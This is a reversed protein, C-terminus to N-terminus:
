ATRRVPAGGGPPLDFVAAAGAERLLDTTHPQSTFYLLQGSRAVQALLRAVREARVPDFNVLVDDMVFPLRRRRGALDEALALRLCLYLQEATGRSLTDVGWTRDRDDLVLMQEGEQVVGRYGQDTVQAFYTGAARLVAPQRDREYGELTRGVLRCAATAVRWEHVLADRRALLAQRRQDLEAVLESTEVEQLRRRTAVLRELAAEREDALAKRRAEVDFPRADEGGDSASAEIGSRQELTRVEALLAAGREEERAIETELQGLRDGLMRAQGGGEKLDRVADALEELAVLQERRWEPDDPGAGTPRGARSLAQDVQKAYRGLAKDLSSFAEEAEELRQRQDRAREVAALLDAVSGPSRDADLDREACWDRWREELAEQSARAAEARERLEALRTEAEERDAETEGSLHSLREIDARRREARDLEMSAREIDAYTPRAPLGLAVADHALAEVARQSAQHAAVVPDDAQRERLSLRALVGLVVLAVVVITLLVVVAMAGALAAWVGGATVLGALAGVVPVTWGPVEPGRSEVLRTAAELASEAAEAEAHAARLRGLRERRHDLEDRDPIDTTEGPEVGTAREERRRAQEVVLEAAELDRGAEHAEGRAAELDEQWRRLEAGSDVTLDASALRAEDWDPGLAAVARAVGERHREREDALRDLRVLRDRQASREQDLRLVRDATEALEEDIDLEARRRTIEDREDRLQDLREGSEAIRLELQELRAHEALQEDLEDVRARAAQEDELREPYAAAAQRAELLRTGVLTLEAQVEDIAATRSRPTWLARADATLRDRVARASRGAGRVGASFLRDRIEEDGLSDDGLGDLDFAFVAGFLQEDCGGTLEAITTDDGVTGDGLLVRLGGGAGAHREVIVEDDVDLFLRGGRRDGEPPLYHNVDRRNGHPHGFLTRQIFALLTSKGAANPGQLVVLGPPLGRTGVDHLVGFADVHWGTIHV